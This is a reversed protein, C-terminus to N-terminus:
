WSLICSDSKTDLHIKEDDVMLEQWQLTAVCLGSLNWLQSCDYLGKRLETCTSKIMQMPFLQTSTM